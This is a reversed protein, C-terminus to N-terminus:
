CNINSRIIAEYLIVECLNKRTMRAKVATSRKEEPLNAETRIVGSLYVETSFASVGPGSFPIPV